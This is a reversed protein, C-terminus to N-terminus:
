VCDHGDALAGRPLKFRATPAQSDVPSEEQQGKATVDVEVVRNRLRGVEVPERAIDDPQVAVIVLGLRIRSHTALVPFTPVLYQRFRLAIQLNRAEAVATVM